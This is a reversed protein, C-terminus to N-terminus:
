EGVLAFYADTYDHVAVTRGGRTAGGAHVWEVAAHQELPIEDLRLYEADIAYAMVVYHTGVEDSGTFNTDYFHEFVGLLRASDRSWDGPGLEDNSIREFAEDLTEGKAVRGGPVFWSGLAPENTRKGVLIRGGADLVVLDISVLPTNKVVALYEDGTLM